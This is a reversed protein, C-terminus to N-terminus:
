DLVSQRHWEAIRVGERPSRQPLLLVAISLKRSSGAQIRDQLIPKLLIDRTRFETRDGPRPKRPRAPAMRNGLQHVSLALLLRIQDLQSSSDSSPCWPTDLYPGPAARQQDRRRGARQSSLVDAEASATCLPYPRDLQGASSGTSRPSYNLSDSLLNDEQSGACGGRAYQNTHQQRRLLQLAPRCLQAIRLARSLAQQLCRKALNVSVPELAGHDISNEGGGVDSFSSEVVVELALFSQAM